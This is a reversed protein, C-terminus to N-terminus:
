ECTWEDGVKACFDPPGRQEWLEVMGISKAVELYKPHATLGLRRYKTSSWILFDAETWASDTLGVDIVLEFYRDLFGFFVYWNTLAFELNIFANAEPMSAIIQPIHRDLYAQGSAPDRAGIVLDRVWNSPLGKQELFAEFHAIAIDDQREALNTNGIVWNAFENGLQLALERTMLSESTRGVAYLANALEANAKASLPDLEVHRQAIRLAERLYGAELLDWTLAWLLEPNDPQKRVARELAEMDGLFSYTEVNGIAFLAEALVLEPDLALARAAFEGMIRQQDAEGCLWWYCLALLEHAEAFNPDLEIAKLAYEKTHRGDLVNHAARAKLFLTYAEASDTPRGRTPNVGVHIQLADIIAAAVDDQVAFIDDLTRNYTESWIHSANSADILQATIRVENGSKRVSGELLTKVDLKQGVIRLDENMGKFAFSSTRGIVKLDPIRALLNLIEESLGDSFYDQEPDSSMNVFPLVAISQQVETAIIEQASDTALAEEHAPEIVFEDYTFYAIALAMVVIIIFDLKRGTIHTTSESRDVDKEKKLGGPTLEYAWAFILALPFGIVLLFLITKMVWEPAAFSDLGLEAVQATLWAVIVYAIAVRIVNRRKLEKIITM